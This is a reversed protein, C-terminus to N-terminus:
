EKCSLVAQYEEKLTPSLITLTGSQSAIYQDKYAERVDFTMIIGQDQNSWIHLHETEYHSRKLKIPIRKIKIVMEDATDAVGKALMIQEPNKMAFPQALSIDCSHQLSKEAITPLANPDNDSLDQADADEALLTFGLALAYEQTTMKPTTVAPMKGYSVQFSAIVLSTLLLTKLSKM